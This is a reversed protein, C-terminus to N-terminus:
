PSVLLVLFHNDGRDTAAPLAAVRLGMLVFSSFLIQEASHDLRAATMTQM